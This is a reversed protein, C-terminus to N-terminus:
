SSRYTKVHKNINLRKRQSLNPTLLFSFEGGKQNTRDYVTFGVESPFYESDYMDPTLWTHVIIDPKYVSAKESSM